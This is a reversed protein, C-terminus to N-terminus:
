ANAHEKKGREMRRPAKKKGKRARPQQTNTFQAAQRSETKNLGEPRHEKRLDRVGCRLACEEHDEAIERALEETYGMDLLRRVSADLRPGPATPKTRVPLGLRARERQEFAEGRRTFELKRVGLPRREVPV